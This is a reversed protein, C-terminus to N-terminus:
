SLFIIEMSPKFNIQTATKARGVKVIAGSAPPTQTIDGNTSLYVFSGPTLSWSANTVKGSILLEQDVQGATQATIVLAEVGATAIASSDAIYVLGDAALYVLKYQAIDEGIDYIEVTNNLSRHLDGFPADKHLADVM